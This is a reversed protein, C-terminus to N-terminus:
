ARLEMDCELFDLARLVLEVARASTPCATREIEVVRQAGSQACVRALNKIGVDFSVVHM